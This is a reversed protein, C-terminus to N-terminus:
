EEIQKPANAEFAADIPTPNSTILITPIEM